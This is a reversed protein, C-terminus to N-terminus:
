GLSSACKNPLTLTMGADYKATDNPIRVHSWGTEKYSDDGVTFCGVYTGASHVSGLIFIFSPRKVCSDHYLPTNLFTQTM